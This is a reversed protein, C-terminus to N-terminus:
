YPVDKLKEVLGKLTRLLPFDRLTEHFVGYVRVSASRARMSWLKLVAAGSSKQGCSCQSYHIHPRGRYSSEPNSDARGGDGRLIKGRSLCGGGYQAQM